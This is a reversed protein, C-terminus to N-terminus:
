LGIRKCQLLTKVCALTGKLLFHHSVGFKNAVKRVSEGGILLEMIKKKKEIDM